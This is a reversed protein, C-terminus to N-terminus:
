PLQLLYLNPKSHIVTADFEGGLGICVFQLSHAAIWSYDAKDAALFARGDTAGCFDDSVLISDPSCVAGVPLSM